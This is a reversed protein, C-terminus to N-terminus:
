FKSYILESRNDKKYIKYIALEYLFTDYELM